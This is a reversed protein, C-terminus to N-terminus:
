FISRYINYSFIFADKDMASLFYSRLFCGKCFALGVYLSLFSRVINRVNKGGCM